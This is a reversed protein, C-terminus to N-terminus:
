FRVGIAIHPDAYYSRRYVVPGDYYGYGYPGYGYWGRHHERWEHEEYQVTQVTPGTLVVTPRAEAPSVTGTGAIAALITLSLVLNRM